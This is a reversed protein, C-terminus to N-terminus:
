TLAKDLLEWISKVKIKKKFEKKALM